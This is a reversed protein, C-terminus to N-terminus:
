GLLSRLRRRVWQEASVLTVGLLVMIAGLVFNLSLPEGLLLVGFTVGFLPTIFSFVALNSALYRRLLWFWTLYSFFSVILGQFLLSGISLPTFQVHTVQGSAVAILLLGVFGVALQYFLTLTAPAESLRSARVVVTTAGWALGALVGFADGLLMRGDLQALSIGGAFAFAIGGFALLIGLWQLPRLRESPLMFHLGLATFVPATYLFVSMHAASTLKLGEAIFLFELGFLAGALLGGRWTSAVQDWGGRFCMLLGVLVAAMGSRMAQQMVPAIDPAAWKIMVQQIGWILCLVLMVQLAFADTNRRSVSM